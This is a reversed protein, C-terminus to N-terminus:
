TTTEPLADVITTPLLGLTKSLAQNSVADFGAIFDRLVEIQRNAVFRAASFAARASHLPAPANKGKDHYQKIQLDCSDIEWYLYAHVNCTRNLSHELMERVEARTYHDYQPVDIPWRDQYVQIRVVPICHPDWPDGYPYEFIVTPGRMQDSRIAILTSNILNM